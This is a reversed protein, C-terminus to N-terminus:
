KSCKKRYATPTVGTVSKFQKMFYSETSYGCEESIERLSLGTETLLQKAREVRFQILEEFVSRGFYAKYLKQLTSRSMEAAHSMQEITWSAGPEDQLQKRLLELRRHQERRSSIRGSEEQKETNDRRSYVRDLAAELDYVYRLYNRDYIRENGCFSLSILGFQREQMHLPSLFLTGANGSEQIFAGADLQAMLKDNQYVSIGDQSCEAALRLQEESVKLYIKLEKMQYLKGCHGIARQLLDPVSDAEALDFPMADCFVDEEWMKPVDENRSVLMQKAPISDCGCSNGIMFGSEPRHIKRCLVGTINRYLRRVADAGLQYHDRSYTTLSVDINSAFPFGDYGTVAIDAPVRIGASKLCKILAMATVDNGCVIAEPRSLEGSIIRGAYEIASDVWFTGYSYYTDDFYLGHESMIDQYARLRTQAQFRAQPGTLCYIKRYGHVEILHRVVKGFDDYDDYQTSDFVSHEQEDVTMVYKNTSLLLSEVEAIVDVGMTTDDKIYLFGDFSQSSILQYIAREGDAHETQCQTFHVLPALIIVDCGCEQAQAIAGRVINRVYNKALVSTVIGILPRKKMTRVGTYTGKHLIIDCESSLILVIKCYINQYKLIIYM